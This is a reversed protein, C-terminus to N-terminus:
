EAATPRALNGEGALRDHLAVADLDFGNPWTPVGFTVFVRDFMAPDQLARVMEGETAILDSLDAVGESRDSFRLWLRHGAMARVQTVKVLEIM